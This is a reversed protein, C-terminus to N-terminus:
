EGRLVIKHFANIVVLAAVGLTLGLVSKATLREKYVIASVVAAILVGGGNTIPFLLISPITKAAVTSCQSIM